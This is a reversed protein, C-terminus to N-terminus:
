HMPEGHDDFVPFEGSRQPNLTTVMENFAEQASRATRGQKKAVKAVSDPDKDGAEVERFTAYNQKLKLVQTMTPIKIRAGGHTAILWMMQDHSLKEYLDVFPSYAESHRILDEETFPIHIRNFNLDRLAVLAWAYFVKSLEISIGWAYAASRIAAQRDHKENDTDIICEVHFRIAGIEQPSGWRCHLEKLKEYFAESIGERDTSTGRVEYYKELDEGPAYFRNRYQNVKFLESKFANKACKSFWSFINGKKPEWALLWKVVKEQAASVLVSLDVTHHYDEHQALREFMTTSLVVVRELVEMAKDDEGKDVLEKWKVALATIETRPFIHENSPSKPKRKAAM